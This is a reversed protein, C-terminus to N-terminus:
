LAMRFSADSAAASQAANMKGFNLKVSFLIGRGLSNTFSYQTYNESSAHNQIRHSNLIDIVKIGFTLAKVNKLVEFNWSTMPAAFMDKYGYFTDYEFDTQFEFDHKTQYSAELTYDLDLTNLDAKPDLSYRSAMYHPYIGVKVQFNDLNLRLTPNVVLSYSSTRSKSFGSDGSYFLDGDASGWFEEMFSNYDFGSPIIGERLGKAQYSTGSLVEATVGINFRLKGNGTVATGYTFGGSLSTGPEKVNVPISYMFSSTDYWIANSITNLNVSGSIFASYSNKRPTSGNVMASIFQTTYPRLYVNGLSLRTPSAVSLSPIMMSAGPMQVNGSSSIFYTTKMDKSRTSLNIYPSLNYAWEGKGSETEVGNSTAKLWNQKVDLDAGLSMTMTGNSYQGFLSAKNTNYRATSYSSYFPSYAGNEKAANDNSSHRFMSSLNFRVTWRDSVPESYSLSANISGYSNHKDYDLVQVLRESSTHDVTRNMLETGQGKGYAATLNLGIRRRPNGPLKVSSNLNASASFTDGAKLTTSNSDHSLMDGLYSSANTSGNSSINSFELAPTFSFSFVKGDTNTLEANVETSRRRGTLFQDEKDHLDPTQLQYSTRDSFSHKDVRDEAYKAFVTTSVNKIRDTNVNIGSNIATHIGDYPLTEAAVQDGGYVVVVMSNDPSINQANSILTIQDKEDYYSALLSTNFLAKDTVLFGNDKGGPVATGGALKLNGFFGQKYEEKLQVDMVREKQVDKIGSIRAADSDKDVVQIRDVISAPINNLAASKDNLFFTKGEITIRDVAKGNVTVDGDKSIEIGPMKKLLAALNDNSGTRFMTANFIITDQKFEVEKGAATITAGDLSRADTRLRIIGADTDKRVYINKQHRHYGLYEVTLIYDGTTVEELVVNGETDSLAFNTILTDSKHKLYASAFSISENTLSDVIQAKLQYSKPKFIDASLVTVSQAKLAPSLVSLLLITLLRKMILLKDNVVFLCQFALYLLEM